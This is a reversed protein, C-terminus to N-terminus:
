SEIEVEEVNDFRELDILLHYPDIGADSPERPVTVTITQEGSRIRHMQLYLTEGFDAGQETPAFIGIQVREDMPVETEVGAPDVTVKRARVRLTVQWTGAATRAASARRTDLEWFTNAAFLVHLLYRLSDPTVAQLERYLDLSTRLPPAGSGHAERLRRFAVNVRERGMYESLAYLAFPGKRYAAYPDMARLLPVSQRIPPIPHPQRFFRLLRRLHERGYTDEVVGMAAYWAFSESLLPAGEALAYPVGWQHAMEHAVIAFPLDLGRLDAAPNFRSFGETYDIM